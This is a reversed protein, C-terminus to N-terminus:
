AVVVAKSTKMMRLRIRGRLIFRDDTWDRGTAPQDEMPVHMVLIVRGLYMLSGKLTM